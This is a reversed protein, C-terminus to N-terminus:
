LDSFLSFMIAVLPILMICLVGPNGTIWLASVAVFSVTIWVIAWEIASRM